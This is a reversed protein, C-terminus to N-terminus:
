ASDGSPPRAERTARGRLRRKTRRLAKFVRLSERLVPVRFYAGLAHKRRVRYVAEDADVRHSVSLEHVRYRFLPESVYWGAGGGLVISLWLDWDQYRRLSEDFGPFRDSRLLTALDIYNHRRLAASDFPRSRWVGMPQPYWSVDGEGFNTRDCYAFAAEPHAALTARLTELFRPEMVNDADFFVVFPSSCEGFGLNRARNGNRFSVPRYCVEPYSRAREATDDDSADDVLIVERPALTQARVSELCADIYRGYNHSTIVVAIDSAATV